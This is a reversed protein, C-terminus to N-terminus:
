PNEGNTNLLKPITEKLTAELPFPKELFIVNGLKLVETKLEPSPDGTMFVVPMKPLLFRIKKVFTIGDLQPMRIDAIVLSYRAPDNTIAELANLPNSFFDAQYHHQRLLSSFVQLLMKEDDVVAIRVKVPPADAM